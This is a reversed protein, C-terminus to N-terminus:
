NIYHIGFYRLRRDLTAISWHYQLFKQQVFDLIEARKLNQAVFEGLDQELQNDEKWDDTTNMIIHQSELLTERSTSSRVSVSILIAVKESGPRESKKLPSLAPRKGFPM